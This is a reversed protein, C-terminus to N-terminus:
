HQRARTFRRGGLRQAAALTTAHDIELVEDVLASARELEGARLLRDLKPFLAVLQQETTSTLRAILVREAEKTELKLVGGGYSRGEIEASLRSASSLMAASLARVDPVGPELRVGHLLNTSLSGIDNSVLRAADHNMYRFFADPRRVPQRIAYWPRRKSCKYRAHLNRAEGTEVYSRVAPTLETALDRPLCVLRATETARARLGTLAAPRRVIPVQHESPIGISKAVAPELVFFADAGTVVGIDVSALQGLPVLRDSALLDEYTKAAAGDLASAWRTPAPKSTVLGDTDGNGAERPAEAQWTRLDSARRIRQVRLGPPGDPGALLLVTSVSADPFVPEDVALVVVSTFRRPLYQRIPEAYDSTLLELPLVLGLRGNETLFQSSHIVFAAWSSAQASLQVGQDLARQISRDRATGNWLQYRIYPPNGVVADVFGVDEPLVAFFDRELVRVCSDISRCTAAASAETEVAVVRVGDARSLGNLRAVIPRVLAGNGASPELVRDAGSRIAWNALFEAVDPPTYFAGRARAEARDVTSPDPETTAVRTPM